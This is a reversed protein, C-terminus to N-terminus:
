LFYDADDQGATKLMDSINSISEPMPIAIEKNNLYGKNASLSRIANQAATTLAQNL